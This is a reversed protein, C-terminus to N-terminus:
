GGERGKRSKVITMQRCQDQRPHGLRGAQERFKAKEGSHLRYEPLKAEGRVTSSTGRGRRAETLWTEKFM